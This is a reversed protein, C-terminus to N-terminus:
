FTAKFQVGWFRLENIFGTLNNFDIAGNVQIENTVNRVFAAAEYKGNGWIYGARLGGITMAKGTFETSEYLFFNVKSRYSWDTYVYFESGNAMPFGYRLNANLIYKPANPLANGDIRALTSGTATVVTPDTVTCQACTGVLLNPDKIKTFNYSGSFSLLLQETLYADFTAELGRGQVKKAALLQTANSAGGVATLQQDKVEYQYVSVSTRAKKDFLDAKVGGEYSLITEPGASTLAAFDSAPQISSGRYGTAIRAYLNVDPTLAYTGSLDWNVKSDSRSLATGESTVTSAIPTTSLDKKDHTWRLGARV